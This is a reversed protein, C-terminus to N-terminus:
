SAACSVPRLTLRLVVTCMRDIINHTRSKCRNCAHTRRTKTLSSVCLCLSPLDTVQQFSTYAVAVFVRIVARDACVPTCPSQNAVNAISVPHSAWLRQQLQRASGQSCVQSCCQFAPQNAEIAISCMRSESCLFVSGSETLGSKPTECRRLLKM